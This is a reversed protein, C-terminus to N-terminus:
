KDEPWMVSTRQGGTKKFSQSRVPQRSQECTLVGNNVGPRSYRIESTVKVPLHQKYKCYFTYWLAAALEVSPCNKELYFM